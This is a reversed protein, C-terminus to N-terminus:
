TIMPLTFKKGLENLCGTISDTDIAIVKSFYKECHSAVQIRVRATIVSAYVFNTIAGLDYKSQATKGYLSNM